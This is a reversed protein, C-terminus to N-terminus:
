GTDIITLYLSDYHLVVVSRKGFNFIILKTVHQTLDQFNKLDGAVNAANEQNKEHSPRAEQQQQKADAM